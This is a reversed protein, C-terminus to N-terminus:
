NIKRLVFRLPATVTEELLLTRQGGVLAYGSRNVGITHKGITLTLQKPTTMGTPENDVFIEALVAQGETDFATVTIKVQKNFDVVVNQTRGAAIEVDKEWVGLTPHTAKLSHKGASLETRFQVATDRKQLVGDVYISGYPLVLIQATGPKAVEPEPKDVVPTPKPIPSLEANVNQKENHKVIVQASHDKYGEKKLIVDHRGVRVDSMTQPTAGVFIGDLFITANSPQSAISVGGIEILNAELSIIQGKRVTVTRSYDRYGDESIRLRHSGAELEYDRLPIEGVRRDDIYVSAGAANSSIEIGGTNTEPVIQDPAKEIPRVALRTSDPEKQAGALVTGGATQTSMVPSVPETAPDDGQNLILNRGFFIALALAAVSAAIMLPKRSGGTKPRSVTPAGRMTMTRSVEDRSVSGGTEFDKIAHIFAEVSQFRKEPKKEIAQMVIRALPKPVGPYFKSPPPFKREVIEKQIHYSTSDSDFPTRGALMEYLTMGLSYIDSRHDVNLLGKVQEPSMYPLTGGMSQATTLQTEQQMKALGFDMVQATGNKTIMVNRPKIDRHLIGLKHAYDIAELVQEFIQIAEAHPIPGRREIMDHLSVGDVFQMVLTLGMESELLDYVSVIHPNEMKALAKAEAKFRKIFNENQSIVPNMMKLAVTKELTTHWAKYVIGMGGEGLKADLRYKDITKIM